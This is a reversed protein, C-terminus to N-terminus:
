LVAGFTAEFSTVTLSPGEIKMSISVQSALANHVSNAFLTPSACKDGFEILSDLFGFTTSLPGYGSGFVIGVRTRDTITIGSDELALFSAMLAMRNFRDIRRLARKPVFRDLGDVEATYVKLDIEEHAGEIKEGVINPLVRKDLGARLTEIGCGLASVTGMGTIYVDNGM